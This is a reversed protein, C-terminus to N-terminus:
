LNKYFNLYYMPVCRKKEILSLLGQKKADSIGVKKIFAKKLIIKNLNVERRSNIIEVQDFDKQEFSTKYFLITPSDRNLMIVRIDSLKVIKPINLFIDTCLFKLDFIDNFSIEHVKYPTGTKKAARIICGYQDPSYIPSSKKYKKIQKEIM